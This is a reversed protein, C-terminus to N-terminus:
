VQFAEPQAPAANWREWAAREGEDYAVLSGLAVYEKLMADHDRVDMAPAGAARPCRLGGIERPGAGYLRCILPRVQYIRCRGDDGLFGCRPDGDEIIPRVPSVGNESAWARVAAWEGERALV